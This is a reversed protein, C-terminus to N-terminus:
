NETAAAGSQGAIKETLLIFGLAVLVVGAMKTRTM